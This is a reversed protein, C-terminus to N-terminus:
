TEPGLMRGTVRTYEDETLWERAAEYSEAVYALRYDGRPDLIEVRGDKTERVLLLYPPNLGEDAWVEYWEAMM